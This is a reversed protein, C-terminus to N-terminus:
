EEEEGYSPNLSFYSKKKDVIKLICGSDDPKVYQRIIASLKQNSFKDPALAESFAQLESITVPKGIEALAEFIVEAIKLNDQQNKTPKSSTSKKALSAQLATLKEKVATDEVSAIAIDLAIAYTMKEM